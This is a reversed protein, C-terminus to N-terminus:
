RGDRRDRQRRASVARRSAPAAHLEDACPVGAGSQTAPQSTMCLPEHTLASVRRYDALTIELPDKVVPLPPEGGAGLM